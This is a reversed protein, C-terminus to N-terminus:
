KHEELGIEVLRRIAEFHDFTPDRAMWKEIRKLQAPNFVMMLLVKQQKLAIRTRLKLPPETELGIEVLRRIAEFHDFTPNGAMWKEIQKLQVANFIKKLLLKQQKLAIRARLENM